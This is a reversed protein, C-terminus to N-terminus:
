LNENQNEMWMTELQQNNKSWLLRESSMQIIPIMELEWKEKIDLNHERLEEQLIKYIHSIFKIRVTGETTPIFFHQIKTPSSSRGDRIVINNTDRQVQLLRPKTFWMERLATWIIKPSSQWVAPGFGSSRRRRNWSGKDGPQLVWLQKSDEDSQFHNHSTKGWLTKLGYMLLGIKWGCIQIWSLSQIWYYIQAGNGGWVTDTDWIDLSGDTPSGWLHRPRRQRLDPNSAKSFLHIWCLLPPSLFM